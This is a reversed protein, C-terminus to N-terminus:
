HDRFAGPDPSGDDKVFDRVSSPTTHASSSFLGLSKCATDTRYKTTDHGARGAGVLPAM